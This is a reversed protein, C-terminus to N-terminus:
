STPMIWNRSTISHVTDYSLSCITHCLRDIVKELTQFVENRFGHLRLWAWIQEIPNMEPTYPPLYIIEINKPIVLAKSKHWAAGDTALLIMDNSYAESLKKLFVNM